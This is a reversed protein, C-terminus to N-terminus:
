YSISINVLFLFLYKSFGFFIILFHDFFNKFFIFLHNLLIKLVYFLWLELMLVWGLCIWFLFFNLIIKISCPFSWSRSNWYGIQNNRLRCCWINYMIIFFYIIIFLIFVMIFILSFFLCIFILIFSGISIFIKIKIFM